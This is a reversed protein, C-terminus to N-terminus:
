YKPYFTLLSFHRKHHEMQRLIIILGNAEIKYSCGRDFHPYPYTVLLRYVADRLAFRKDIEEYEKNMWDKAILENVHVTGYVTKITQPPFLNRIYELKPNLNEKKYIARLKHM